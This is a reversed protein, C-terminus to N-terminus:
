IKYIANIIKNFILDPHLKADVTFCMDACKTLSKPHEGAIKQYIIRAEGNKTGVNKYVTDELFVDRYDEVGDPKKKFRRLQIRRFNDWLSLDLLVFLLKFQSRIGMKVWTEYWSFTLFLCEIAIIDVEPNELAAKISRGVGENGLKSYVTDLGTCQNDGLKGIVALNAKPYLTYCYDMKEKSIVKSEVIGDNKGESLFDILKKLQTTKGSGGGGHIAVLIKQKSM